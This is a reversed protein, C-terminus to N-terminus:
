IPRNAPLPGKKLATLVPRRADLRKSNLWVVCAHGIQRDAGVGHMKDDEALIGSGRKIACPM